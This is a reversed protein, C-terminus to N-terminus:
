SRGQSIRMLLRASSPLHRAGWVMFRDYSVVARGWAEPSSVEAPGLASQKNVAFLDWRGPLGKLERSERPDFGIGSGVALDRVAASVLVEDAEASTAVRAGVHVALGRVSDAKLELEGTHIGARVM